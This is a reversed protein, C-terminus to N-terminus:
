FGITTGVSYALHYVGTIKDKVEILEPRYPDILGNIRDRLDLIDEIYSNNYLDKYDDHSNSNQLFSDLHSSSIIGEVRKCNQFTLDKEGQIPISHSLICFVISLASPRLNVDLLSLSSPENIENLKGIIINYEEKVKGVVFDTQDDVSINLETLKQKIEVEKM